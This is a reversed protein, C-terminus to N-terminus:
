LSDIYNSYYLESSLIITVFNKQYILILFKAKYIFFIIYM